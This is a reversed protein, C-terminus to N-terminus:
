RPVLAAGVAAIKAKCMTKKNKNKNKKETMHDLLM